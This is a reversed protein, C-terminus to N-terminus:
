CNKYSEKIININSMELTYKKRRKKKRKRKQLQIWTKRESRMIREGRM